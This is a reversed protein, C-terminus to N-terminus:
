LSRMRACEIGNPATWVLLIVNEVLREREFAVVAASEKLFSERPRGAYLAGVSVVRRCFGLGLRDLLGRLLGLAFRRRSPRWGHRRRVRNGVLRRGANPTREVNLGLIPARLWWRLGSLGTRPDPPAINLHDVIADGFAPLEGDVGRDQALALPNEGLGRETEARLGIV